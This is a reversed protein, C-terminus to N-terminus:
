TVPKDAGRTEYGAVDRLAQPVLPARVIWSVEPYIRCGVARHDVVVLGVVDLEVRDLDPDAELSDGDDDQHRMEERVEAQYTFNPSCQVTSFLFLTCLSLIPKTVTKHFKWQHVLM